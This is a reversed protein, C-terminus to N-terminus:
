RPVLVPSLIADDGRLVLSAPDIQLSCSRHRSQIGFGLRQPLLEISSISELRLLPTVAGFM